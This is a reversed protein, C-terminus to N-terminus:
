RKQTPAPELVEKVVALRTSNKPMIRKFIDEYIDAIMDWDRAKAFAMGKKVIKQYESRHEILYLVADAFSRPKEPQALIGGGDKVVERVGPIDSAIVPIGASMAELLVLGFAERRSKSPLIFIDSSKYYGLLAEDSVNGAFMVRRKIGLKGVREKLSDMEPGTGVITLYVEKKYERAIIKVAHLLTDVGKYEKLQGVFLLRKIDKENKEEPIPASFKRYDVGMPVITVKDKFTKLPYSTSAYSRSSAIVFNSMSVVLSAIFSYQTNAIKGINGGELTEADNHYTVVVPKKRIRAFFVGLDTVGPTMGHAHLVDFDEFLVKFAAGFGRPAELLYSKVPFRVVEIGESTVERPPSGGVRLQTIVKVQHGKSALRKTLEYACREVGGRSPPYCASLVLIRL